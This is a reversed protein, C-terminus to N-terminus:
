VIRGTISMFDTRASAEAPAAHLVRRACLYYKAYYPSDLSEVVVGHRASHLMKNNGVYIGVHTAAYKSGTKKFFVLDGVQLADKPIVVGDQLQTSATRHIQIGCQRMVYSTFGSCDFAGPRAGGYVYRSGLQKRGQTYISKRQALVEAYDTYTVTDTQDKHDKCNVYYEEGVQQVQRKPVYGKMDYCHIKYYNKKEALVQLKTGDEIQGIPFGSDSASNHVIVTKRAQTEETSAQAAPQAFSMIGVLCLVAALLRLGPKRNETMVELGKRIEIQLSKTVFQQL